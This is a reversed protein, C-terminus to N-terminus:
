LSYIYNTPYIGWMVNNSEYRGGTTFGGQGYVRADSSFCYNGSQQYINNTVRDVNWAKDVEVVLGDIPTTQYSTSIVDNRSYDPVAAANTFCADIRKSEYCPGIACASKQIDLRKEVRVSAKFSIREPRDMCQTGNVTDICSSDLPQYCQAWNGQNLCYDINQSVMNKVAECMNQETEGNDVVASGFAQQFKLVVDQGVESEDYMWCRDQLQADLTSWYSLNRQYTTYNAFVDFHDQGLMSSPLPYNVETTEINKMSEDSSNAFNELATMFDEVNNLVLLNAAEDAGAQTGLIEFSYGKFQQEIESRETSDYNGDAGYSELSAKLEFTKSKIESNSESEKKVRITFYMSRGTTVTDVYKDGCARRFSKKYGNELFSEKDSQMQLVSAQKAKYKNQKDTFAAVIVSSETVKETKSFVEQNYSGGVSFGSFALNLGVERKINLSRALSEYTEVQTFSYNQENIFEVSDIVDEGSSVWCGSSLYEGKLAEFGHGLLATATAPQSTKSLGTSSKVQINVDNMPKTYLGDQDFSPNIVLYSSYEYDSCGESSCAKVAFRSTTSGANFTTSRGTGYYIQSLSGGQPQEYVQYRFNSGTGQTTSPWSLSVQGSGQEYKVFIESVSRPAVPLPEGITTDCSTDGIQCAAMASTWGWGDKSQDTVTEFDSTDEFYETDEVQQPAAYGSCSFGLGLAGLLLSIKNLRSM